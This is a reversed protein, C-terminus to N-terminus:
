SYRRNWRRTLVGDDAQCVYVDAELGFRERYGSRVTREFRDVAASRVLSVVSGGFGAGTMRSGYVGGVERGIEVVADLEDCSVAYRDRLSAHSEDMHKGVASLDGQRLAAAAAEVRENESVVHEVRRRITGDLRDACGELAAPSVDRLATVAVDGLCEDLAAVGRECERRRENYASDVLDHRVNTDTVVIRVDGAIPISEFTGDRCDLLLAADAAGFAAAFQDMIGCDVGVFDNEAARCARVLTRRDVDLDSAAVLGAGVALEFAASSALGAGMPVTGDVVLDAGNLNGASKESDRLERVVGRVYNAWHSDDRREIRDLDFADTEEFDRSHVWVRRDPRPRVAVRVRRDVAVPLVFGENYDTHGGVLNVRGPASAITIPTVAGAGGDFRDRLTAVLVAPDVAGTM